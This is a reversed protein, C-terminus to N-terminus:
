NIWMRKRISMKEKLIEHPTGGKFAGHLRHFNYFAEWENLKENLDIGGTCSLLQYFEEKFYKKKPLENKNYNGVFAHRTGRRYPNWPLGQRRAKLRPL